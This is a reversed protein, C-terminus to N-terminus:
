INDSKSRNCSECLLQINRATNSGGKSFPIIHDFELGRQSNCKVCKGGDRRWVEFKVSEPILRQEDRTDQFGLEERVRIRLEDEIEARIKARMAQVRARELEERRISEYEIHTLAKRWLSAFDASGIEKAFLIQILSRTTIPVKRGIKRFLENIETTTPTIGANYCCKLCWRLFTLEDWEEHSATVRRVLTNFFIKHPLRKPLAAYMGEPSTYQLTMRSKVFRKAKQFESANCELIANIEEIFPCLASKTYDSRRLLKRVERHNGPWEYDGKRIWSLLIEYAQWIRQCDALSPLIDAGKSNM